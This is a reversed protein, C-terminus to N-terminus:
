NEEAIPPHSERLREQPVYPRGTASCMTSSYGMYIYPACNKCPRSGRCKAKNTGTTSRSSTIISTPQVLHAMRVLRPNSRETIDPSYIAELFSPDPTDFYSTIRHILRQKRIDPLGIIVEICSDIVSAEINELTNDSNTLTDRRNCLGRTNSNFFLTIYEIV